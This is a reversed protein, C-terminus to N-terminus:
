VEVKPEQQVSEDAQEYNNILILEILKLMKEADTKTRSEIEHNAANGLNKIEEAQKQQKKHVIGESCLYEVYQFFKLNTEAGEVVAINMLIKRLLMVTATYAGAGFCTRAEEYIQNVNEPLKKIAKGPRVSPIITGRVDEIHPAYCHPCIYIKSVNNKTKYGYESAVQNGCNWCIFEKSALGQVNYWGDVKFNIM